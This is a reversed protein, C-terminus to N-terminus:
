LTLLGRTTRIWKLLYVPYLPYRGFVIIVRFKQAIFRRRAAHSGVIRPLMTERGQRVFRDGNSSPCVETDECGMSFCNGNGLDVSGTAM